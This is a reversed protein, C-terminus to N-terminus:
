GQHCRCRSRHAIWCMHGQFHSMPAATHSVHLGQKTDGVKLVEKMSLELFYQLSICTFLIAEVQTFHNKNEPYPLTETRVGNLQKIKWPVFGKSVEQWIFDFFLFFDLFVLCKGLHRSPPVQLHIACLGFEHPCDWSFLLISFTVNGYYEVFTSWYIVPASVIPISMKNTQKMDTMDIFGWM